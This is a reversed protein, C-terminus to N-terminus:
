RDDDADSKKAAKGYLTAFSGKLFEEESGMLFM